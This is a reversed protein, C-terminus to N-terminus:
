RNCPAESPNKFYNRLPHGAERLTQLIAKVV